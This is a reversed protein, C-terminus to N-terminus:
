ATQTSYIFNVIRYPDRPLDLPDPIAKGFASTSGLTANQDGAHKIDYDQNGNQHQSTWAPTNNGANNLNGHNGGESFMKLRTLPLNDNTIVLDANVPGKTGNAQSLGNPNTAPNYVDSPDQGALTCGRGPIWEAWGTPIEIAPRFWPVLGGGGVMEGASNLSPLFPAVALLIKNMQAQQNAIFQRYTDNLVGDAYITIHSGSTLQYDSITVTGLTLNYTLRDNEFENSVDTASVVYDSKGLLRVDTITVENTDADYSYSDDGVRVKFPSGLATYINGTDGGGGGGTGGPLAAVPAQCLKNRINDWIYVIDDVAATRNLAPLDILRVRTLLLTFGSQSGTGTSNIVSIINSGGYNPWAEIQTDSVIRFFLASVGGFLVSTADTFHLGNITVKEGPTQSNPSFSDIIPLAM